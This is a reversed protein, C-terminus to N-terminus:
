KSPRLLAALRPAEFEAARCTIGAVEAAHVLKRSNLESYCIWLVDDADSVQDVAGAQQGGSLEEILIRDDPRLASWDRVRVEQPLTDEPFAAATCLTM